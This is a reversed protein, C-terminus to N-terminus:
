SNAENGKGRVKGRALSNTHGEIILNRIQVSHKSNEKYIERLWIKGFSYLCKKAHSELEFSGSKFWSNKWGEKYTIQITEPQGSRSTIVAGSCVKKKQILKIVLENVKNFARRADVVPEIIDKMFDTNKKNMVVFILVFSIMLGTALDSYSLWVFNEQQKNVKKSM